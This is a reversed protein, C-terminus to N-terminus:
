KFHVKQDKSSIVIIVPLMYFIRNPCDQKFNPNKFQEHKGKPVHVVPLVREQFCVAFCLALPEM